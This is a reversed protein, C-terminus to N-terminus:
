RKNEIGNIFRKELNDKAVIVLADYNKYDNLYNVLESEKKYPLFIRHHM